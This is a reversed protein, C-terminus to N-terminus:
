KKEKAETSSNQNKKRKRKKKIRRKPESMITRSFLLLYPVPKQELILLMKYVITNTQWKTTLIKSSIALLDERSITKHLLFFVVVFFIYGVVLM